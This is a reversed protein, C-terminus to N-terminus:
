LRHGHQKVTYICIYILLCPVYFYCVVSILTVYLIWELYVPDASHPGPFIHSRTRNRHLIIHPYGTVVKKVRGQPCYSFKFANCIVHEVSQTRYQQGKFHFKPYKLQAAGIEEATMVHATCFDKYPCDSWSVSKDIIQGMRAEEWVRQITQRWTGVTQGLEWVYGDEKGKEKSKGGTNGGFIKQLKQKATFGNSSLVWKKRFKRWYEPVSQASSVVSLQKHIRGYEHTQDIWFIKQKEVHMTLVNLLCDIYMM